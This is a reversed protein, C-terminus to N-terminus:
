VSPQLPRGADKRHTEGLQRLTQRAAYVRVAASLTLARGAGLM